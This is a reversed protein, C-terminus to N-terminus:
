DFDGLDIFKTEAKPADESEKEKKLYNFSNYKIPEKFSEEPEEKKIEKVTNQGFASSPNEEASSEVLAGRGKVSRFPPQFVNEKEEAKVDLNDKLAKYYENLKGETGTQHQLMAQLLISEKKPEPEVEEVIKEEVMAPEVEEAKEEKVVVEEKTEEKPKEIIPKDKLSSALEQIYSVLKEPRPNAVMPIEANSGSNFSEVGEKEAQLYVVRANRIDLQAPEFVRSKLFNMVVTTLNDSLGYTSKLLEEFQKVEYKGILVSVVDRHLLVQKDSPINAISYINEMTDDMYQSFLLEQIKAPLFEYVDFATINNM